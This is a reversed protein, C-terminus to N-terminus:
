YAVLVSGWRQAATWDPYFFFHRAAYADGVGKDEVTVGPRGNALVAAFEQFPEELLAQLAFVAVVVGVLFAYVLERFIAGSFHGLFIGTHVFVCLARGTVLAMSVQNKSFVLAIRLLDLRRLGVPSRVRINIRYM